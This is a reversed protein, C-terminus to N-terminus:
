IHILSLEWHTAKHIKAKSPQLYLEKLSSMKEHVKEIKYSSVLMLSNYGVIVDQLNIEEEIKNKFAVIDHLISENIESPWVVLIAKEGFPKYSLKYNSM